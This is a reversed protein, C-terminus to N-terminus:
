KRDWPPLYKMDLFEFIQLENKIGAVYEGTDVDRLGHESLSYGMKKAILRQRENFIGSGTFYLLAFPWEDEQIVELDVRFALGTSTKTIGMYKTPGIGLTEIFVKKKSLRDVLEKLIGQDKKACLLVDMDGCTPLKRRYSGCVRSTVTWRLDRCIQRIEAQVVKAIEDVQWRPMRQQLDKFYRLGIKQNDTLLHIHDDKIDKLSRAGMDWLEQAKVPGVGWIKNFLTLTKTKAIKEPGLEEVQHLEGTDIIEQIKDAIKKGIGNLKQADKGSEIQYNCGSIVKIANRYARARFRDKTEKSTQAEKLLVQLNSIILDNAAMHTKLSTQIASKHLM